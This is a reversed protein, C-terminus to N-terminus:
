RKTELSIYEAFVKVKGIYRTGGRKMPNSCVNIAINDYKINELSSVDKLRNSIFIIPTQIRSLDIQSLHSIDELGCEAVTLSTPSLGKWASLPSLSPLKCKKITLDELSSFDVSSLSSFSNFEVNCLTLHQLRSTDTNRFYQGLDQTSSHKSLSLSLSVLPPAKSFLLPAFLPLNDYGTREFDIEISQLDSTDIIFIDCLSMLSSVYLRNRVKLVGFDEGLDPSLYRAIIPLLQVERIPSRFFSQHLVSDQNKNLSGCLLTRLYFSPPLCHNPYSSNVAKSSSERVRYIAEDRKYQTDTMEYLLAAECYDAISSSRSGAKMGLRLYKSAREVTDQRSALIIYGKAPDDYYKVVAQFHYKDMKKVSGLNSLVDLSTDCKENDLKSGMELWQTGRKTSKLDEALAMKYCLYGALCKEDRILAVMRVVEERSIDGLPSVDSLANIVKKCIQNKHAAGLELWKIVREKTRTQNSCAVECCAKGFASSTNSASRVFCEFEWLEEIKIKKSVTSLNKLAVQSKHHGLDAAYKLWRKAKEMNEQGLSFGCVIDLYRYRYKIIYLSDESSLEGMDDMSSLVQLSEICDTDKAEAGLQLWQRRRSSSVGERKANVYCVNGISGTLAVLEEPLTEGEIGEIYRLSEFLNRHETQPTLKTKKRRSM